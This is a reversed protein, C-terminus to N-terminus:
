MVICMKIPCGIKEINSGGGAVVGNEEYREYNSEWYAKMNVEGGLVCRNMEVDVMNVVLGGGM